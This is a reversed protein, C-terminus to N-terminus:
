RMLISLAQCTPAVDHTRFFQAGQQAAILSLSLGGGLRETGADAGFGSAPAGLGEAALLPLSSKRSVGILVPVGLGHFLSTWDIIQQNHLPTKGFGFGPDIAIQTPPLGAAVLRAIHSKLVEYIDIPAFNYSPRDQMTQPTGQMHMAIAFADNPAVKYAEAMIKEAGESTFGSVDNIIRAGADLAIRMVDSHRTDCSVLVGERVLATIVPLIRACETESGIIPANPRTSEGGIDLLSAGDALMRRAHTLAQDTHSFQGGDSFSDPTVNVVGMIHPRTMDLGAFPARPQSLRLLAAKASKTDQSAALYGAIDTRWAHYGAGIKKCTVVDLHTFGTWGGALALYADGLHTEKLVSLPQCAVPRLWTPGADPQIDLQAPSNVYVLNAEPM